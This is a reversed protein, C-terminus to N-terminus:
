GQADAGGEGGGAEADTFLRILHSLADHARSALWANLHTGITLHRHWERHTKTDSVNAGCRECTRGSFTPSTLADGSAILKWFEPFSERVLREFDSRSPDLIPSHELEAV